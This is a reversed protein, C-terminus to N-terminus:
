RERPPSSRPAGTGTLHRSYPCVPSPSAKEKQLVKNEKGDEEKVKHYREIFEKGLSEFLEPNNKELSEMTDISPKEPMIGLVDSLSEHMGYNFRGYMDTGQTHQQAYLNAMVTQKLKQSQKESLESEKVGFEPLMTEYQRGLEDYNIRDDQRNQNMQLQKVQDTLGRIADNAALLPAKEDDEYHEPIPIYDVRKEQQQNDAGLQRLRQQLAIPDNQFRRADALEVETKKQQRAKDQQRQTFNFDGKSLLEQLQELSEPKREEGDVKYTYNDPNFEYESAEEEGDVSVDDVDSDVDETEIVEDTTQEEDVDEKSEGGALANERAQAVWNLESM